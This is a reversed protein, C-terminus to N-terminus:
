PFVHIRKIQSIQLNEYIYGDHGIELWCHSTVSLPTPFLHVCNSGPWLRHRCVRSLGWFHHPFLPPDTEKTRRSGEGSRGVSGQFRLQILLNGQETTNGPGQNYGALPSCHCPFLFPLSHAQGELKKGILNDRRDTQTVQCHGAPKMAISQRDTEMRRERKRKLNWYQARRRSKWALSHPTERNKRATNNRKTEMSHGFKCIIKKLLKWIISTSCAIKKRHTTDKGVYSYSFFHDPYTNLTYSRSKLLM